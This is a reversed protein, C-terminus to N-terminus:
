APTNANFKFRYTSHPSHGIPALSQASLIGFPIEKRCKFAFAKFIARNWRFDNRIRQFLTISTPLNKRARTRFDEIREIRGPSWVFCGHATCLRIWSPQTNYLCFANYQQIRHQATSYRYTCPVRQKYTSTSLVPLQRYTYYWPRNSKNVNTM